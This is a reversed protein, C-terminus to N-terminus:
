VPFSARQARHYINDCAAKGTYTPATNLGSLSAPTIKTRPRCVPLNQPIRVKTFPLGSRYHYLCTGHPEGYTHAVLTPNVLREAYDELNAPDHTQGSHMSSQKQTWAM